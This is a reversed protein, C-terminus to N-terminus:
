AALSTQHRLQWGGGVGSRVLEMTVLESHPDREPRAQVRLLEADARGVGRPMRRATEWWNIREFWRLSEAGVLWLVGGCDLSHPQGDSGTNVEVDEM